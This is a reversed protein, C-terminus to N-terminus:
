RRRGDPQGFKFIKPHIGRFKYRIDPEKDEIPAGGADPDFGADFFNVNFSVNDNPVAYYQRPRGTLVLKNADESGWLLQQGLCSEFSHEQNM